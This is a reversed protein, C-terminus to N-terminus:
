TVNRREEFVIDTKIWRPKMYPNSKSVTLFVKVLKNYVVVRLSDASYILTEVCSFIRHNNYYKFVFVWLFISFLSLPVSCLSNMSPKNVDSIILLIYIKHAVIIKKELWIKHSQAIIYFM